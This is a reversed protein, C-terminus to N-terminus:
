VLARSREKSEWVGRVRVRGGFLKEPVAVGCLFEIEDDFPRRLEQALTCNSGSLFVSDTKAHRLFRVAPAFPAAARCAPSSPYPCISVRRDSGKNRACCSIVVDLEQYKQTTRRRM